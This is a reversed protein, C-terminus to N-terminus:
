RLLRIIRLYKPNDPVGYGFLWAALDPDPENLLQAFLKKEPESLTPFQTQYFNLLLLDLELMGRRCKWELDLYEDNM